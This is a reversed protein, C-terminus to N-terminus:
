RFPCVDEPKYIKAQAGHYDSGLPILIESHEVAYQIAAACGDYMKHTSQYAKWLATAMEVYPSGYPDNGYKQQLTNYTTTADSENGRVIHLLMIRFYAYAALRPYEYPDPNGAVPTGVASFGENNIKYMTDNQRQSSWWELKANFITERYAKEADTFNGDLTARDGDQIAQFRYQAPDYKIPLPVFEEGNWKYIITGRRWPPLSYLYERFQWYIEKTKDNDIDKIQVLQFASSSETDSLLTQFSDMHWEIVSLDFWSGLPSGKEDGVIIEIIGNQNADVPLLYTRDLPYTRSFLTIYKGESCGLIIAKRQRYSNGQLIIEPIGDNTADVIEYRIKEHLLVNGDPYDHQDIKKEFTNIITKISAGQNLATILEPYYDNFNSLNITVNKQPAPCEAKPAPTITVMTSVDFTPTFTPITPLPTLSATPTQTPLSTQTATPILSPTASNSIIPLPIAQTAPACANMCWVFSILGIVLKKV